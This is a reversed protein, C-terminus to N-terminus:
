KKTSEGGQSEGSSAEPKNGGSSQNGSGGKGSTSQKGPPRMSVNARENYQKQLQEERRPNRNPVVKQTNGRKSTTRKNKAM